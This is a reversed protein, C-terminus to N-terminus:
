VGASAKPPAAMIEKFAAVFKDMEAQTGVSVRLHQTMPPFPRGVLVDRKQFEPAVASVERKLGVMFFNAESPLVEYGLARLKAVTDDRIQKNLAKTKAQGSTDKLSAAGGFKVTISQSGTTFTRVKRILEAPAIGYGLRMAALAAIKSFTRCVIVPRGELVYKMSSEYSPSDVFHHYAEDILVPMDKPIGDLLQKIQDKPVIMGTPNNPNVIYVFGIEDARKNAIDIIAPINQTYDKNLPVRITERGIQAAKSYPDGYTPNVGLVKKKPDGILLAITISSLLEGSGCGLIINEAKVGHLEQLAQNLGGDPAGYRNAWEWAKPDDMATRVAPPVGYPNENNNIKAVKTLDVTPRPGRGGQGAVGARGQQAFLDVDPRAGIYGLAAAIGGVFKRRSVAM